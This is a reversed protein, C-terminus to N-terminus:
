CCIGITNLWWGLDMTISTRTALMSLQETNERRADNRQDTSLAQHSIRGQLFNVTIWAMIGLLDYDMMRGEDSGEM